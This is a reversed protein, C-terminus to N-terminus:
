WEPKPRDKVEPQRRHLFLSTSSFHLHTFLPCFVSSTITKLKILCRCLCLCPLVSISSLPPHSRFSLRTSCPHSSSAAGGSLPKPVASLLAPCALLYCGRLAASFSSKFYSRRGPPPPSADEPALLCVQTLRLTRARSGIYMPFLAARGTKGRPAQTAVLRPKIAGANMGPDLQPSVSLKADVLSTKFFM